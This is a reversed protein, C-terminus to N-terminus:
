LGIGSDHNDLIPVVTIVILIIHEMLVSRNLVGYEKADKWHRPMMRIEDLTTQIIQREAELQLVRQIHKM